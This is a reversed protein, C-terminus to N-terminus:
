IGVYQFLSMRESQQVWKLARNRKLQEVVRNPGGDARIYAKDPNFDNSTNHLFLYGGRVLINIANEADSAAAEYAHNGDVFVVDFQAKEKRLQLLTKSSDGALLRVFPFDKVRSQAEELTLIDGVHTQNLTTASSGTYESDFLDVGVLVPDKRQKLMDAITLVCGLHYVGIELYRTIHKQSVVRKLLGWERRRLDSEQLPSHVAKLYFRWSKEDLARMIDTLKSVEKVPLAPISSIASEFNM